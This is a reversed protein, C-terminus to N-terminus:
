SNLRLSKIKVSVIELGASLHARLIKNFEKILDDKSLPEEGNELDPDDTLEITLQWKKM